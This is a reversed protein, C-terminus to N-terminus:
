TSDDIQSLYIQTDHLNHLHILKYFKPNPLSPNRRDRRSSRNQTRTSKFSKWLLQSFLQVNQCAADAEPLWLWCFFALVFVVKFAHKPISRKLLKLNTRVEKMWVPRVGRARAKFFNRFSRMLHKFFMTIMYEWSTARFNGVGGSTLYCVTETAERSVDLTILFVWV